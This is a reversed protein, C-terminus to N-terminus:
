SRMSVKESASVLASKQRDQCVFRDLLDVELEGTGHDNKARELITDVVVEHPLIWVPEAGANGMCSAATAVVLNVTAVIM